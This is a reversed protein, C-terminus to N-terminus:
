IYIYINIYIHINMYINIYIYKYIYIHIYLYIYINIYMHIFTYIIYICKYICVYIHIYIYIFVNGTSVCSHMCSEIRVCICGILLVLMKTSRQPILEHLVCQLASYRVAVSQLASCCAVSHAAVAYEARNSTERFQPLLLVRGCSLEQASSDWFNLTEAWSSNYARHTHTGLTSLNLFHKWFYPERASCDWSAM